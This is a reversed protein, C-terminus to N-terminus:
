GRGRSKSRGRGKSRSRGRSKSRSRGRSKSRSKKLPRLPKGCQAMLKKHADSRVRIKRGTKPNILVNGAQDLFLRCWAPRRTRRAPTPM